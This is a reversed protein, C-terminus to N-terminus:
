RSEIKILNNDILYSLGKKLKNKGIQLNKMLQKKTICFDRKYSTSLSALYAYLGGAFINTISQITETPMYIHQKDKDSLIPVLFTIKINSM